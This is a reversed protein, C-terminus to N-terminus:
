VEGRVRGLADRLVRAKATLHSYHKHLMATGSHGLLEAVQADPVGAALADTAFTHRMGYPTITGRLGLKERLRRVLRALYYAPPFPRGSRRRFLPGDPHRTALEKCLAVIRPTLHIVRAEATQHATKHKQLIWVGPDPFFEAATVTLVEGPRAGTDHLALLVDRLYPPAAEMLRAHEEPTLLAQTGRSRAKPKKIGAVPNSQILEQAVAWNFVAAVRSKVHNETTPNWERHGRVVEEVHHKRLRCAPLEGYRALLPKLYCRAVYVTRGTARRGLDALYDEVLRLVTFSGEPLPPRDSGEAMLRHFERFAKEKDKGLRHLRGHLYVCWEQKGERYWPKPTRGAM